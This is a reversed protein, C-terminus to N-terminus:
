VTYAAMLKITQNIRRFDLCMVLGTVPGIRSRWSTEEEKYIM